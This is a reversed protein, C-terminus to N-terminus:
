IFLLRGWIWSLADIDVELEVPRDVVDDFEIDEEAEILARRRNKRAASRAIAADFGADAGRRSNV